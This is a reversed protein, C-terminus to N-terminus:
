KHRGMRAEVRLDRVSGYEPGAYSDSFVQKGDLRVEFWDHPAHDQTVLRYMFSLVPRYVTIPVTVTIALTSQGGPSTTTMPTGALAAYDGSHGAGRVLEPMPLGHADWPSLRGDEFGGNRSALLDDAPPLFVDAASVVVGATLTM